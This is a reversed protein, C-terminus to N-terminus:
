RQHGGGCLVRDVAHWYAVYMDVIAAMALGRGGGARYCALHVAAVAAAAMIHRTRM